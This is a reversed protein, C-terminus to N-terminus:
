QDSFKDIWSKFDNSVIPTFAQRISDMFVEIKIKIMEDQEERADDYRKRNEKSENIWGWISRCPADM